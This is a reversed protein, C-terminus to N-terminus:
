INDDYEYVDEDIRHFEYPESAEYVDERDISQLEYSENADDEGSDESSDEDESSLRCEDNIINNTNSSTTTLRHLEQTISQIVKKNKTVRPKGNVSESLFFKIGDEGTDNYIKQLIEFTIKASAIRGKMFHMTLMLWLSEMSFSKKEKKRDPLCEKLAPLSDSMMNVQAQFEEMLGHQQLHNLLINTDFKNDCVTLGTIFSAGRSMGFAPVIYRNFVNGEDIAAAIQCIESLDASLGSTGLDFIVLKEDGSVVNEETWYSDQLVSSFDFQACGSRYSIGEQNEKIQEKRTREKKRENMKKRVDPDCLRKLRINYIKDKATRYKETYFGPSYGAKQNVLTVYASGENPKLAAVRVRTPFSATSAFFLNKLHCVAVTHNFSENRQTSGCPALQHVNEALKKFINEISKRRNNDNM